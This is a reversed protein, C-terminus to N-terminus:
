TRMSNRISIRGDPLKTGSPIFNINKYVIEKVNKTMVFESPPSWVSFALARDYALNGRVVEPFKYDPDILNLNQRGTSAGTVAVPQKNPDAVFPIHNTPSVSTSMSTFDVGTNGYQNSLWVYPTRGTFFGIGGASAVAEFWWELPGLDYRRAAVVDQPAPVVDTAFGFDAVSLPNAKPTDSFHPIDLRVGYTVTVNPRARWQDGAYAGWQQVSFEAAQQPDSTNSFGHSDFQTDGAQFNAISFFEWQGYLNQIFFNWFKFFENHTGVTITHNGKVLTIDDTVEVIDQKLRNAHAFKPASGFM